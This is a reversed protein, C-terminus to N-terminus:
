VLMTSTGKRSKKRDSEKSGRGEKRSGERGGDVLTLGIDATPRADSM